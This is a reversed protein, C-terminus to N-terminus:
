VELDLVMLVEEQWGSYKSIFGKANRGYEKFGLSKYLSIAAKNDGIVELIIQKLGAKKACEICAETLARGIGIGWYAMDVNIGFEVRHRTKFFTSNHNLGALGVVKGDVIALLEVENENDLKEQLYKEEDEVTLLFDDNYSLLYDTQEHTLRFNELADKGDAKTGSRLICERGDKLIVTKYYEM